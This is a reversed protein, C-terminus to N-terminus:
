GGAGANCDCDIYFDTRSIVCGFTDHFVQVRDIVRGAGSCKPCLSVDFSVTDWRYCYRFAQLYAPNVMNDGTM